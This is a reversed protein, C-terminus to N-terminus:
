TEAAAPLAPYGPYTVVGWGGLFRAHSDGRVRSLGRSSEIWTAPPTRSSVVPTCAHPEGPSRRRGRTQAHHPSRRDSRRQLFASQLAWLSLRPRAAHKKEATQHDPGEPAMTGTTGLIGEPGPEDSVVERPGEPMPHHPHRSVVSNAGATRCLCGPPEWRHPLVTTQGMASVQEPSPTTGMELSCALGLPGTKQLGKQRRLAPLLQEMGPNEPQSRTHSASGPSQKHQDLFTKIARYHGIM